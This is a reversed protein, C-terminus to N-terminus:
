SAWPDFKTGGSAVAADEAEDGEVLKAETINTYEGNKKSTIWAKTGIMEQAVTFKIKDEPVEFDLMRKKFFSHKQRLKAADLSPDKVTFVEDLSMGSEADTWEMKLFLKGSKAKDEFTEVKTLEGLWTGTPKVFPDDPVDNFDVDLDGLNDTM